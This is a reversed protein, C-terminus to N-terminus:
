TLKSGSIRKFPKNTKENLVIRIEIRYKISGSVCLIVAPLNIIILLLINPPLEFSIPIFNHIDNNIKIEKINSFLSTIPFFLYRSRINKGNKNFNKISVPERTANMAKMRPILTINTIKM